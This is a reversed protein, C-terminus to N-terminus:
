EQQTAESGSRRGFFRGLLGTKKTAKKPEATHITERQQKAAALQAAKLFNEHAKAQKEAEDEQVRKLREEKEATAENLLFEGRNIKATEGESKITPLLEKKRDISMPQTSIEGM